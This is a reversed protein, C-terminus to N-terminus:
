RALNFGGTSTTQSGMSPNFTGINGMTPMPTNAMSPNNISPNIGQMIQLGTPSQSTGYGMDTTPSSFGTTATPTPSGFLTGITAATQPSLSGTAGGLGAGLYTMGSGTTDLSSQVGAQAGAVNLLRSDLTQKAVINNKTITDLIAQQDAVPIGLMKAKEQWLQLKKASETQQNAFDQVWTNYGTNASTQAGAQAVGFAEAAKGMGMDQLARGAAGSYLTGSKNAAANLAQAGIKTQYEVNPNLLQQTLAPLDYSFAKPAVVNYDEPKFTKLYNYYEDRNVEQNVLQAKYAENPAVESEYMQQIKDPFASLAKKQARLKDAESANKMLGLGAGVVAQTALALGMITIPDM